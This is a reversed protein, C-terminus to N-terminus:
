VPFKRPEKTELLSSSESGLIRPRILLLNGAPKAYNEAVLSYAYGLPQDKEQLNTVSAKTLRYTALSQALLTEIVKVKDKDTTVSRLFDRQYAASDGLRLENVDGVLTGSASLTMKATRRVGSLSPALKPLLVLEGGDPSVLLAYNAQ